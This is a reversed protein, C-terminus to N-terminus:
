AGGARGRGPSAEQRDYTAPSIGAERLRNKQIKETPTKPLSELFEVYRPVMFYPLREELFDLLEGATLEADPRLVLCAKIEDETHESPVAIVACELVAPHESIEREVEFSSVNEGRRRIADKVRDVFVYQGDSAQRLADGTHLWQNRWAEVTKDPMRHYGDMLSWPDRSRVVMEGTEGPAVEMDNEDVLRAELGPLLWGAEGPRAQGLPATTVTSAETSGYGTAVAEVGFRQQFAELEAIVPVMTLRKMGHRRDADSPPQRFLFDAMAGLLLTYTCGFRAVDRWFTGARFRPLVVVSGGAIFGSYGCAWQGAIHFLPLACANVDEATPAGTLKPHAYGYAHAHAVRVGKSLGTTGSTYLIGMLEWPALAAPRVRDRFLEEYRLVRIREPLRPRQGPDGRVVVYEVAPLEDAVKSLVDLYGAEIILARAGSNNMVHSLISGKYATNVPVEIRGTLCVGLWSVVCDVHNDLMLLVPEQHGIGLQELGGGLGLALEYLQAYSLRRGPDALALKDPSRALTGEFASVLNRERLPPMMRTTRTWDPM